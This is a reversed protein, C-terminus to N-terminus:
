KAGILIRYSTFGATLYFFMKIADFVLSYDSFDVCIKEAESMFSLKLCYTPLGEVTPVPPALGDLPAFFSTVGLTTFKSKALSAFSVGSGYSSTYFGDSGITRTGVKGAGVVPMGKFFDDAPNGISGENDSVCKLNSSDWITGDGCEVVPAVAYTCVATDADWSDGSATCWPPISKSGVSPSPPPPPPSPPPGPPPPSPPPDVTIIPPTTTIARRCQNTNSPNILTGVPCASSVKATTSNCTFAGATVKRCQAANSPNPQWGAGCSPYTSPQYDVCYAINNERVIAGTVCGSTGWMVQQKYKCERGLGGSPTYVYPNQSTYRRPPCVNKTGRSKTTYSVPPVRTEGAICAGSTLSRKKTCTGSVDTFGTPCETDRNTLEHTNRGVMVIIPVPKEVSPWSATTADSELWTQVVTGCIGWDQTYTMENERVNFSQDYNKLGKVLYSKKIVEVGQVTTSSSGCNEVTASDGAPLYDRDINATINLTITADATGEAFSHRYVAQENWTTPYTPAQYVPFKSGSGGSKINPTGKRHWTVRACGAQPYHSCACQRSNTWAPHGEPFPRTFDYGSADLCNVAAYCESNPDIELLYEDGNYFTDLQESFGLTHSPSGDPRIETDYFDYTKASMSEWNGKNACNFNVAEAHGSLCVILALSVLIIPTFQILFSWILESLNEFRGIRKQYWKM